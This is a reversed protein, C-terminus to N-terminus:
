RRLVGLERLHAIIERAAEDPAPDVLLRGGGAASETAAKLRDAASAGAAAKAILKPRKRYPREDIAAGSRLAAQGARREVTGRRAAAFAFPLATPAAPHVTVVAPLRVTVRRRAGRPLAQVVHVAGEGAPEIAVADAIIPLGLAKALAYPLLGSDDAGQAQRGALILDPRDTALAAVLGALPDDEVATELWLLRPLGQGLADRVADAAPGAHLGTLEPTGLTHALRIAQLEVAAPCPRGSVPHLGASLLVTVKM